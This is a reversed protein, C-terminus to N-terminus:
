TYKTPLMLCGILMNNCTILKISINACASTGAASVADCIGSVTIHYIHVCYILFWYENPLMWKEVISMGLGSSMRLLTRSSTIEFIFESYTHRFIRTGWVKCSISLYFRKFNKLRLYITTTTIKTWWKPFLFLVNLVFMGNWENIILM